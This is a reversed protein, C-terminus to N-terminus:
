LQTTAAIARGPYEIEKNLKGQRQIAQSLTQTLLVQRTQRTGTGIQLLARETQQIIMGRRRHGVLQQLAQPWLQLRKQLNQPRMHRRRSRRSAQSVPNIQSIIIRAALTIDQDNGANAMRPGFNEFLLQEMIAKMGM